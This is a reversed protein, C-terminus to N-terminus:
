AAEKEPKEEEGSSHEEGNDESDEDGSIERNLEELKELQKALELEDTDSVVKPQSCFIPRQVSCTLLFRPNTM